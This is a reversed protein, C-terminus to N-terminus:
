EDRREKTTTAARPDRGDLVIVTAMDSYACGRETLDARAVAYDYTRRRARWLFRVTLLNCVAFTWGMAAIAAWVSVARM